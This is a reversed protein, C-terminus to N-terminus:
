GDLGLKSRIELIKDYAQTVLQFLEPDRKTGLAGSDPHLAKVKGRYATKIDSLSAGRSLGLLKLAELYERDISNARGGVGGGFLPLDGGDSRASFDERTATRAYRESNVEEGAVGSTRGSFRTFYALLAILLLFAILLLIISGSIQILGARFLQVRESFSLKTEISAVFDRGTQREGIRGFALALELRLRDNEVNPDPRFGTLSRFVVRAQHLHEQSILYELEALQYKIVLDRVTPDEQAAVKVLRAVRHNDLAFEPKPQLARLARRILESTSAPTRALAGLSLAKLAEEPAREDLRVRAWSELEVSVLTRVLSNAPLEGAGQELLTDMRGERISSHLRKVKETAEVVERPFPDGPDFTKVTLNALGKLTVVGDLFLARSLEASIIEKALALNTRLILRGQREGWESDLSGLLVVAVFLAGQNIEERSHSDILQGLLPTVEPTPLVKVLSTGFSDATTQPHSLLAAIGKGAIQWEGKEISIQIFRELASQGIAAINESKSFYDEVLYRNLDKKAVLRSEGNLTVKVSKEDIELIQDVPFRIGAITQEDALAIGSLHNGVLAGPLSLLFLLLALSISLRTEGTSHRGFRM